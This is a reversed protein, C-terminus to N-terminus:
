NSNDYLIVFDNAKDNNEYLNFIDNDNSPVVEKDKNIQLNISELEKKLDKIEQEREKDKIEREKEKQKLLQVKNQLNYIIINSVAPM